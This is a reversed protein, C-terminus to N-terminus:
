RGKSTEGDRPRATDLPRTEVQGATSDLCARRIRERATARAHEIAAVAEAGSRAMYWHRGARLAADRWAVQDPSLRGDQAKLEIWVCAHLGPVVEVEVLLDPAGKGGTGYRIWRGDQQIAGVVNTWVVVGPLSGLAILVASKVRAEPGRKTM